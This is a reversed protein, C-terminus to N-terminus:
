PKDRSTAQEGCRAVNGRRVHALVARAARLVAARTFAHQSTGRLAAAARVLEREDDALRLGSTRKEAM